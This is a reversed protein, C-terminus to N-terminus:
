ESVGGAVWSDLGVADGGGISVDGGIYVGNPIKVKTFVKNERSRNESLNLPGIITSASWQGLREITSSNLNTKGSM